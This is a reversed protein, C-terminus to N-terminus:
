WRLETNPIPWAQMQNQFQATIAGADSDSAIIYPTIFVLLETRSKSRAQNRFFLGVGPVDKLYPVGADDASRNEAIMGGIMVTQGDRLTLDTSVSRNQILPSTIGPTSNPLAESVEQNLTLDIRNGAHIVPKVSLLVGTQQYTISQLIGTTGANQITN